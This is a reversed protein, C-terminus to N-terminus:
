VSIQDFPKSASCAWQVNEISASTDAVLPVVGDFLPVLFYM